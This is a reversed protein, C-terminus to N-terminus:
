YKQHVAVRLVLTGGGDSQPHYPFTRIQSIGLTDCMMKFVGSM